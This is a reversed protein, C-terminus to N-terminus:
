GRRQHTRPDDAGGDHRLRAPRHIVIEGGGPRDVFLLKLRQLERDLEDHFQQQALRM